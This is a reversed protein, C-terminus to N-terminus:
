EFQLTIEYSKGINAENFYKQRMSLVDDTFCWIYNNYNSVSYPTGLQYTDGGIYITLKSQLANINIGNENKAVQVLFGEGQNKYGCVTAVNAVSPDFLDTSILDFRGIGWKKYFGYNNQPGSAPDLYHGITVTGKIHNPKLEPRPPTIVDGDYVVWDDAFLDSHDVQWNSLTGDQNALVIKEQNTSDSSLEIYKKSEPFSARRLKEGSKLNQVAWCITNKTM